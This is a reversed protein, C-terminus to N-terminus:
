FLTLLVMVLGVMAVAWALTRLVPIGLAYIPLYALRGWFYLQAALALQADGRGMAVAALLAAAFLVFTELFNASARQVRGGIGDLAPKSADRASLAWGLGNRAVSFTAALLIHVLGLVVSWALMTMTVSM